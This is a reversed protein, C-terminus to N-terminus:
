GIELLGEFSHLHDGAVVLPPNGCDGLIKVENSFTILGVRKNPDTQAIVRIQKEIAAKFLADAFILECVYM